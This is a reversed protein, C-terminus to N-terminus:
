AGGPRVCRRDRVSPDGLMNSELAQSEITIRSVSGASGFFKRM